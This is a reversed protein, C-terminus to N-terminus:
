GKILGASRIFHLVEHIPADNYVNPEMFFNDWHNLRLYATAECDCLIHIAWEDNEQCRKCIPEDTLGLKFLHGKLHCNETFLGVVWRLQNRNLKLLEKMRRASPKQILGKAEKLGTLSEWYKKHNSNIWDRIEKKAVGTSIGWVSEPKM